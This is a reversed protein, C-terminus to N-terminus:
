QKPFGAGWIAGNSLTLNKNNGSLDPATTGSTANFQWYGVLGTQPATLEKTMNTQIQSATRATNWIRLEDISGTLNFETSGNGHAGSVFTAGLTYSVPTAFSQTTRAVGDIYVIVQSASKVVAVHHWANDKMNVGFANFGQWNFNGTHLFFTLSGDPEARLGYNDGNSFIESGVLTTNQIKVWSEVTFTQLNYLGGGNVSAGASAGNLSMANNTAPTTTTPLNLNDFKATGPAAVNAWTGVSIRVKLATVDFTKATQRRVTWTVSDPSTEFYITNGAERIRWWKMSTANYAVSTDSNVNNTSLRAVLNNNSRMIVARNNADLEAMLQTEAAGAGTTQSVDALLSSGTLDYNQKSVIGFYGPANATPAVNLTGNQTTQAATGFTSWKTADITTGTFADQLQNMPTNTPTTPPSSIPAGATWNAGNVLTLPHLQNASNDVVNTGNGEDAKYYAVLKSLEGAPLTTNRYQSIEADTRPASWVRLEDIAGNFNYDGSGNGHQGVYLNPGLVYAIPAANEAEGVKNGDVYFKVASATKTVAIHHWIGDKVNVTDVDAGTWEGNGTAWAFVVGGEPTLRIMWNDGQSIVEAGGDDTALTKVWAEATFQQLKFDEPKAAIAYDNLGDFQVSRTVPQGTPFVSATKTASLGAANTATLTFEIYFPKEHAPFTISGGTGDVTTVQHAHCSDLPCHQITVKWHLQDAPMPQGNNTATGAFNIVQGDAATSADVPSTITLVPPEQGVYVTVTSTATHNQTDKVTLTATYIGNQTYTHAPNAATSVASGDGFNWSYTLPDNDPDSSGASSFNVALPSPGFTKDAAALASPPQNQTSYSIKFIADNYIGVYYVDGNPGPFFSVPGAANNAFTQVSGPVLNKNADLQLTYIQNRAYDGYFFRNQWQAPYQNGTYFMGAAIASGPPHEYVTTPFTMNAPVNAYLSQCQALDKYAGTTGEPIGNQQENGEYCPWGYNKGATVVNVEEWTAWGVDGMVVTGNTPHIAFRFPNRFGYAYVKSRIHSPNGDYFPNDAPGTGDAPNIRLMKGSYSDLNQARFARTDVDNYSASEGISVYLKGDSGFQLTDPGHSFYDAPICDTNVPYQDCSPKAPTGVTTGLIIKESGPTAVDGNATVRLLRGTKSDNDHGPNNDYTYLLYVYGNSAFNPDLALGLLGRDVYTNVNPTTYFPTGLTAGNKVIKVVGNKQAVFMRGDPAFAATTPTTFGTAVSNLTFGAPAGTNPLPAADARTTLM